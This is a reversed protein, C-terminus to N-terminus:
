LGLLQKKKADYEEQSIAGLDLLEKFKKLEDAASPAAPATQQANSAQMEQQFEEKTLERLDRSGCKPCRDYNIVENAKNQAAVSNITGAVYGPANGLMQGVAALSSLGSSILKKRNKELDAQTYCFVYGCVNCVKRFEKSPEEQKKQENEALPTEPQEEKLVRKLDEEAWNAPNEVLVQRLDEKTWNIPNGLKKTLKSGGLKNYCTICLQKGGAITFSNSKFINKTVNVPKGCIVCTSTKEMDM